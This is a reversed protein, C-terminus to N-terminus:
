FSDYSKLSVRLCFWFCHRLVANFMKTVKKQHRRQWQDEPYGCQTSFQSSLKMWDRQLLPGRKTTYLHSICHLLIVRSFVLQLHTYSLSKCRGVVTRAENAFTIMDKRVMPSWPGERFPYKLKWKAFDRTKCFLLWFWFTVMLQFIENTHGVTEQIASRGGSSNITTHNIDGWAGVFCLWLYRDDHLEKSFKCQM